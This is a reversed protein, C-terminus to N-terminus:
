SFHFVLSEEFYSNILHWFDFHFIHYFFIVFLSLKAIKSKVPNIIFEWSDTTLCFSVLLRIGYQTWSNKEHEYQYRVAKM